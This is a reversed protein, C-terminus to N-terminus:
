EVYDSALINKKETATHITELLEKTVNGLVLNIQIERTSGVSVSGSSISTRRFDDSKMEDPIHTCDSSSNTSTVHLM